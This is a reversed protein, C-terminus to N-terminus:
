SDSCSSGAITEQLTKGQIKDGGRAPNKSTSTASSMAKDGQQM